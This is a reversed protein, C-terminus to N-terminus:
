DTEALCREAVHAILESPEGGRYLPSRRDWLLWELQAVVAAPVPEFGSLRTALELLADREHLVAQERIKLYASMQRGHEACSVLAELALGVKRREGETSLQAARIMLAPSAWPSCGAALAADLKRRHLQVRVRALRRGMWTRPCADIGDRLDIRHM